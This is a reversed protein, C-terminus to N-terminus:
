AVGRFVLSPRATCRPLIPPAKCKRSGIPNACQHRYVWLNYAIEQDVTERFTQVDGDVRIDEVVQQAGLAILIGLVVIGVEGWFARWGDLPKFLRLRM